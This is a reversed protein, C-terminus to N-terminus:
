KGESLSIRISSTVEDPHTDNRHIVVDFRKSEFMHQFGALTDLLDDTDALVDPGAGFPSPVYIFSLPHDKVYKDVYEVVVDVPMGRWDLITDGLPLQNKRNMNALVEM